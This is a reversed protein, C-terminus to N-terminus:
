VDLWLIYFSVCFTVPIQRLLALLGAKYRWVKWTQAGKCGAIPSRFLYYDHIYWVHSMRKPYHKHYYKVDPDPFDDCKIFGIIKGCQENSAAIYEEVTMGKFRSQVLLQKKWLPNDKIAKRVESMSQTSSVHVAIPIDRYDHKRGCVNWHRNECKKLGDFILDVQPRRITLVVGPFISQAEETTIDDQPYASAKKSVVQVGAKSKPKSNSTRKVKKKSKSKTNSKSKSKTKSNTASKSRANSKGRASQKQRPM